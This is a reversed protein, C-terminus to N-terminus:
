GNLLQDLVLESIPKVEGQATRLEYLM